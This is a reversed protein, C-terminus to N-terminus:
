FYSQSCTASYVRMKGFDFPTFEEKLIQHVGNNIGVMVSANDTGLGVMNQLKLGIDQITKM